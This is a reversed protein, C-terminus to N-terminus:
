KKKESFLNVGCNRCIHSHMHFFDAKIRKNSERTRSLISCYCPSQGKIRLDLKSHACEYILM